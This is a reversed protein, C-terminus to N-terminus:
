QTVDGTETTIDETVPTIKELASAYYQNDEPFLKTIAKYYKEAAELGDKAETCMGCIYLARDYGQPLSEQDFLEACRIAELGKELAGAHDGQSYKTDMEGLVSNMYSPLKDGYIVEDLYKDESDRVNLEAIKELLSMAEEYKGNDFLLGLTYLKAATKWYEADGQAINVTQTLNEIQTELEQVRQSMAVLDDAAATPIPTVTINGPAEDGTFIAMAVFFAIVAGVIFFVVQKAWAGTLVGAPLYIRKERELRPLKDLNFDRNQLVQRYGEGIDGIKIGNEVMSDIYKIAMIGAPQQRVAYELEAYSDRYKETAMLCLGLLVRAETFEPNDRIIGRLELIAVDYGGLKVRDLVRNYAANRDGDDCNENLSRYRSIEGSIDIMSEKWLLEQVEQRIWLSM